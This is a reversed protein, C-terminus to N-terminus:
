KSGSRTLRFDAATQGQVGTVRATFPGGEDRFCSLRGTAATAPEMNRSVASAVVSGAELVEVRDAVGAPATLTVRLPSACLHLRGGRVSASFVDVADAPVLNAFLAHQATLQSGPIYDSAAECGNSSMGDFDAHGPLCALGDTFPAAPQGCPQYPLPVCPRTVPAPTTSAVALKKPGAHHRWRAVALSGAALVLCVATMAVIVRKKKRRRKPAPTPGTGSPGGFAAAATPRREPRAELMPTIMRRAPAPIARPPPAVQGQAAKLMLALPDGQGFPGQGCLAYRLTAGLSFVDSARTAPEGRALEPSMFEPTGIVMGATTLGPTFQENVAVGFDALAPRGATDFLVNAPKIDRHVIGQRHATALADLLVRGISIVAPAPLSGSIAVRDALSDVMRPMVLVLDTGDDEVALLPVIGPHHLRSLIDAERRIRQRAQDIRESSGALMLRKRAVERGYSDVALEVVAMGGRGLVGVVQYSV